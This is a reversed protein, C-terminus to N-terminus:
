RDALSRYLLGPVINESCGIGDSEDDWTDTGLDRDEALCRCYGGTRDETEKETKWTM